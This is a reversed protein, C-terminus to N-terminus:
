SWPLPVRALGSSTSGRGDTIMSPQKRQVGLQGPGAEVHSHVERWRLLHPDAPLGGAVGGPTAVCRLLDRRLQLAPLRFRLSVDARLLALRVDM